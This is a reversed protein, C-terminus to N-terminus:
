TGPRTRYAMRDPRTEDSGYPGCPIWASGSDSRRMLARSRFVDGFSVGLLDRTHKLDIDLCHFRVPELKHRSQINVIHRAKNSLGDTGAKKRRVDSNCGFTVAANSKLMRAPSLAKERMRVMAM